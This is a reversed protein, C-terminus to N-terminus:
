SGVNCQVLIVGVEYTCETMMTPFLVIYTQWFSPAYTHIYCLFIFCVTIHLQNCYFLHINLKVHISFEVGVKHLTTRIGLCWLSPTFPNHLCEQSFLHSHQAECVLWMVGPSLAM